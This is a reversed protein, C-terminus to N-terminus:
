SATSQTIYSKYIGGIGERFHCGIVFNVNLMERRCVCTFRECYGSTETALRIRRLLNIRVVDDGCFDRMPRMIIKIEAFSM